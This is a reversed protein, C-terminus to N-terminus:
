DEQKGKASEPAEPVVDQAVVAEESDAAVSLLYDLLQQKTMRSPGVTEAVGLYPAASREKNQRLDPSAM